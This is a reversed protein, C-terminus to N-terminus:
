KTAAKINALFAEDDYFDDDFNFLQTKAPVKAPRPGTSANTLPRKVIMQTPKIAVGIPKISTTPKASKNMLSTNNRLPVKPPQLTRIPLKDFPIPTKPM